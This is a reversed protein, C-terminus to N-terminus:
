YQNKRRALVSLLTNIVVELKLVALREMNRRFTGESIEHLRWLKTMSTSAIETMLFLADSKCMIGVNQSKYGKFQM